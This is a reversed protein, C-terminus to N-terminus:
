LVKEICFTYQHWFVPENKYSKTAFKEDAFYHIKFTKSISDKFQTIESQDFSNNFNAWEHVKGWLNFIIFNGTTLVKDLMEKQMFPLVNKAIVIDFNQSPEYEEFSTQLFTVQTNKFDKSFDDKDIATVEYGFEALKKAIEGDRAGIDLVTVNASNKSFYKKILQIPQM